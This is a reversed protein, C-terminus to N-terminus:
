SRLSFCNLLSSSRFSWFVRRYSIISTHRWPQENALEQTCFDITCNYRYNKCVYDSQYQQISSLISRIRGGTLVTQSLWERSHSTSPCWVQLTHWIHRHEAASDCYGCTVDCCLDLRSAPVNRGRVSARRPHRSREPARPHRPPLWFWWTQCCRWTLETM